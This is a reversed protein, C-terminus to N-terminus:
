APRSFGLLKLAEHIEPSVLAALFAQTAPRAKRDSVLAFDYHEETLPIFGLAASRAVPAITIGWDARGQAVAAAVANHSRPQNWYGEPRASGLLQDVLIRTGSGQNRNVMICDLDALAARLAEDASSEQFRVDGQRYVIGQMRRWGEVLELDDSLFPANYSETQTDFLHIPAIDCEGRKAAALGGLSGIAISRVTLGDRFLKSVVLDLGTCNSGIVVLDPVRIHPAFLTVPTEIGAPL